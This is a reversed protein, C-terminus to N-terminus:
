HTVQSRAVPFPALGVAGSNLFRLPIAPIDSESRDLGMRRPAEFASRMRLGSLALIVAPTGFFIFHSRGHSLFTAPQGMVPILGLANSWSIAWQIAIMIAFGVCAYAATSAAPREFSQGPLWRMILFGCCVLSAALAWQLAAIVIAGDKGYLAILWTGVFDSQIAPMRLAIAQPATDDSVVTCNGKFFVHAVSEALDAITYRLATAFGDAGGTGASLIAPLRDCEATGIAERSRAVQLGVDAFEIAIRDDSASRGNFEIWSIFREIPTSFPGGMYGILYARSADTNQLASAGVSMMALALAFPVLLMWTEPRRLILKLRRWTISHLKAFMRERWPPPDFAPRFHDAPPGLLQRAVLMRDSTKALLHIVFVLLFTLAATLVLILFPSLDGRFVPFAVIVVLMAVIWSFSNWFADRRALQIVLWVVGFGVGFAASWVGLALSSAAPSVLLGVAAGTALGVVFAVATHLLRRRSERRDALRVYLAANVGRERDLALTVAVALALVTLTKVIESPQVFDAIGTETGFALWLALITGTAALLVVFGRPLRNLKLCRGAAVLPRFLAAIFRPSAQPVRIWDGPAVLSRFRAAIFYPSLQSAIIVAGASAAVCFSADDAFRLFRMEQMELSLAVLSAHGIAVLATWIVFVAGTAPTAGRATAVAFGAAAWAVVAFRPPAPALHPGTRSLIYAFVAYAIIAVGAWSLILRFLRELWIEPAPRNVPFGAGMSPWLSRAFAWAGPLLLLPSGALLAWSVALRDLHMGKWAEAARPAQRCRVVVQQGWEGPRFASSGENCVLGARTMRHTSQEPRIVFAPGNEAEPRWTVKYRTYGAVFSELELTRGGLDHLIAPQEVSALPLASGNRLVTAAPDAGAVLVFGLRDLQNLSVAGFGNDLVSIASLRGATCTVNGGFGLIPLEPPSNALPRIVQPINALHGWLSAVPEPVYSVLYAFLGANQCAQLRSGDESVIAIASGAAVEYTKGGTTFAVKNPDVHTFEIEAGNAGGSLRLVDGPELRFRSSFFSLGREGPAQDRYSLSLRRTSSVNTISWGSAGQRFGVHPESASGTLKPDQMLATSGLTFRGATQSVAIEELAVGEPQRSGFDDLLSAWSYCLALVACFTIALWFLRLAKVFIALLVGIALALYWYEISIAFAAAFVDM